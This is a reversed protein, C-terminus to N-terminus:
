TQHYQQPVVHLHYLYGRRMWTMIESPPELRRVHPQMEGPAKVEDALFRAACTCMVYFFTAYMSDTPAYCDLMRIIRQTMRETLSVILIGSAGRRDDIRM